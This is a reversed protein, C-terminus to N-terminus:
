GHNHAPVEAVTTAHGFPRPDEVSVPRAYVAVGGGVQVIDIRLSPTVRVEQPNAVRQIEVRAEGESWGLEIPPRDEILLWWHGVATEVVLLARGPLFGKAEETMAEDVRYSRLRESVVDSVQM